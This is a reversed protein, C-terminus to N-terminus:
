NEKLSNCCKYRLNIATVANAITSILSLAFCTMSVPDVPPTNGNEDEYGLVAMTHMIVVVLQPIDELVVIGIMIRAATKSDYNEDSEAEGFWHAARARLVSLDYVLFLTGIITSALCVGRLTSADGSDYYNKYMHSDLSIFYMGYDSAVDFVRLSALFAYLFNSSHMMGFPNGSTYMFGGFAVATLPVTAAYFFQYRRAEIAPALEASLAVSFTDCGSTVEIVPCQREPRGALYATDYRGSDQGENGCYGTACRASFSAEQVLNLNYIASLVEECDENSEFSITAMSFEICKEDSWRAKGNLMCEAAFAKFDGKTKECVINPISAETQAFTKEFAVKVESCKLMDNTGLQSNQWNGYYGDTCFFIANAKAKALEKNLDSLGAKYEPDTCEGNIIDLDGEEVITGVTNVECTTQADANPIGNALLMAIVVLAHVSTSQM